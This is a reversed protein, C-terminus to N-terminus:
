GPSFIVQVADTLVYSSALFLLLGIGAAADKLWVMATEM